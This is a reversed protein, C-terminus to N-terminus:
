RYNLFVVSFLHALFLFVRVINASLMPVYNSSSRHGKVSPHNGPAIEEMKVARRLSALATQPTTTRDTQRDCAHKTVLGFFRGAINKYWM